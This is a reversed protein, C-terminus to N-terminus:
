VVYWVRLLVLLRYGRKEARRFNEVFVADFIYERAEVVGAPSVRQGPVKGAQEKPFGIARSGAVDVVAKEWVANITKQM